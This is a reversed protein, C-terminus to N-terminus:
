AEEGLLAYRKESKSAKKIPAHPRTLRQRAMTLYEPNLDVGVGSRGLQETVVLTTGSGVFNDLITCPIRDNVNCSCSPNWGVTRYTTTHRGPDRNGTTEGDIGNVKSGTGPRTAQRDKEVQRVWPSGCNPCCGKESTGLAVCRRVLERPMAAYHAYRSSETNIRWVNRLPSGSTSTVALRDFYYRPKKSLM